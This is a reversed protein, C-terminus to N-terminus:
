GQQAVPWQNHKRGAAGAAKEGLKAPEHEVGQFAVRFALSRYTHILTGEVVETKARAACSEVQSQLESESANACDTTHFVFGSGDFDQSLCHFRTAQIFRRYPRTQLGEVASRPTSDHIRESRSVRALWEAFSAATTSAIIRPM